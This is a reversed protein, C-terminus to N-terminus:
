MTAGVFSIPNKKKLDLNNESLYQIVLGIVFECNPNKLLINYNYFM